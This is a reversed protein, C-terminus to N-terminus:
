NYFHQFKQQSIEVPKWSLLFWHSHETWIKLLGQWMEIHQWSEPQFRLEKQDTKTVRAKKVKYICVKCALNGSNFHSSIEPIERKYNCLPCSTNSVGRTPTGFLFPVLNKHGSPICKIVLSQFHPLVISLRPLFDCTKDLPVKILVM